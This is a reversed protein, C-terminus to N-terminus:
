MMMFIEDLNSGGHDGRRHMSRRRTEDDKNRRLRESNMERLESNGVYEESNTEWTRMYILCRGEGMNRESFCYRGLMWVSCTEKSM